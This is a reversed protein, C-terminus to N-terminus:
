LINLNLPGITPIDHDQDEIKLELWDRVIENLSILAKSETDATAWVGSLLPISIFFSGDDLEESIARNMAARAYNEKLSNIASDRSFASAGLNEDLGKSTERWLNMFDVSINIESTNRSEIMIPTM